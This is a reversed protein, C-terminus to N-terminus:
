NNSQFWDISKIQKRVSKSNNNKTPSCFNVKGKGYHFMWIEGSANPSSTLEIHKLGFKVKRKFNYVQDTQEVLSLLTSQLQDKMPSYCDVIGTMLVAIAADINNTAAYSRALWIQITNKRKGLSTGSMSLYPHKNQAILFYKACQEYLERQYLYIGLQMAANHQYCAYTEFFNTGPHKENLSSAIIKEYWAITSDTNQTVSYLVAINFFSRGYTVSTDPESDIIQQYLLLASDPKSNVLQNALELKDDNGASASLLFSFVFLTTAFFKM